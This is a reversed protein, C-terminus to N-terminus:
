ALYFPPSRLGHTKAQRSNDGTWGAAWWVWGWAAEVNPRLLYAVNDEVGLASQRPQRRNADLRGRALLEYSAARPLVERRKQIQVAPKAVLLPDEECVVVRVDEHSIQESNEGPSGM